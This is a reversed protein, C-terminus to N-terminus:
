RRSLVDIVERARDHWTDRAVSAQLRARLHRLHDPSTRLWERVLGAAVEPRDTAPVLDGFKEFVEARPTSVHLVGLAALEYARPNLSEAETIYEPADGFGTDGKSTRYLNLSAGARAYLSAAQENSVIYEDREPDARYPKMSEQPWTGYLTLPGGAQAYKELWAAREGFGTGVFVCEHSPMEPLKGAARDHFGRRWAHPLYEVGLKRATTRENSFTVDAIESWKRESEEDYPSETLILATRMRAKKLVQLTMLPVYMGSVVIVWDVESMLARVLIGDCAQLLIETHSVVPPLNMKLTEIEIERQANLFKGAAAIRRDLPYVVVTHGLDRLGEQLGMFVDHTSVSSGPHVLLVRM